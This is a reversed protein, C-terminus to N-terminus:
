AAACRALYRATSATKNKSRAQVWEMRILNTKALERFDRWLDVNKGMGLDVYKVFQYSSRPRALQRACDYLYSNATQIKVVCPFKLQKLGNVIGMLELRNESTSAVSGTLTKHKDRYKLICAWGASPRGYKKVWAGGALMVEKTPFDDRIDM